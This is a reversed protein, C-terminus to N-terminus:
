AELVELRRTRILDIQVLRAPVAVFALAVELAAGLVVLAADVGLPNM